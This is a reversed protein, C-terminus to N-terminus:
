APARCSYRSVWAPIASDGIVSSSIRQPLWHSTGGSCACRNTPRLTSRTSSTSVVPDVTSAAVRASSRRPTACTLTSENALTALWPPSVRYAQLAAVAANVQEPRTSIQQSSTRDVVVLAINKLPNRNEQRLSPNALAFLLVFAALARLWWGSLGRWLAVVLLMAALVGLGALVPWPLLFDFVLDTAMRNGWGNWFPRCM